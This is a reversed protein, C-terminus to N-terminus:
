YDRMGIPIGDGDGSMCNSFLQCLDNGNESFPRGDEKVFYYSFYSASDLRSGGNAHNRIANKANRLLILYPMFINALRPSFCKIGIIDRQITSRQKRYWTIMFLDGGFVVFSRMMTDTNLLQLITLSTVQSPSGLTLHMLIFLLDRLKEMKELFQLQLIPNDWGTQELIDLWLHDLNNSQDTVFSYGPAEEFMKDCLKSMDYEKIGTFLALLEEILEEASTFASTVMQQLKSLSVMQGSAVIMLDTKLIHDEFQVSAV